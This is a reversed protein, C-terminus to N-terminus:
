TEIYDCDERLVELWQTMRQQALCDFLANQADSHVVQAVPRWTYVLGHIVRGVATAGAHNHLRIDPTGGEVLDRRQFRLLRQCGSHWMQVIDAM